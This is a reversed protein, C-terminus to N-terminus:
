QRTEETREQQIIREKATRFYAEDIEIGIYRREEERAAICTSGSGMCFDLVTERADTYTRILYRLLEVPKANPHYKRDERVLPIRIISVPYKKENIVPPLPIFNGYVSNKVGEKVLRDNNRTHNPNGKTFQPHYVPQKRYFVMIDEHVRLPMRGANLFGGKFYKDWILNYKWLGKPAQTVTRATFMGQGFLVIAANQKTVRLLEPWLMDMDILTDWAAGPNTKSLVGYPPDALVMGVSGDDLEAIRKLCDGKMLMGNETKYTETLNDM